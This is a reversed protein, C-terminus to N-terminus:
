LCKERTNELVAEPIDYLSSIIKTPVGNGLMRIMDILTIEQPDVLTDDKRFIGKMIDNNIMSLLEANEDNLKKIMADKAVSSETCMGMMSDLLDIQSGLKKVPCEEAM